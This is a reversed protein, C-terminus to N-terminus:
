AENDTHASPYQLSDNREIDPSFKKQPCGSDTMGLAINDSCVTDNTQKEEEGNEAQKYHSDDEESLLNKNNAVSFDEECENEDRWKELKLCNTWLESWM